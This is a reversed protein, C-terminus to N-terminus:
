DVIYISCHIHIYIYIQIYINCIIHINQNNVVESDATCTQVHSHTEFDQIGCLPLQLFHHVVLRSPHGIKLCISTINEYNFM